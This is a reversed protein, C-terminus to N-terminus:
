GGARSLTGTATLTGNEQRWDYGLRGGDLPRLTLLGGDVCSGFTIRERLELAGPGSRRLLLDGGCALSPYQITGVVEGPRGGALTLAISWEGAQDSQSGTGRWSGAFAHGVGAEGAPAPQAAACAALGCALLVVASTRM